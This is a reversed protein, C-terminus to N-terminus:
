LFIIPRLQICIPATIDTNTTTSARPTGTTIDISLMHRYSSMDQKVTECMLNLDTKIFDTECM